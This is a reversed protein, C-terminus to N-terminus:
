KKVRWWLSDIEDREGLPEPEKRCILRDKALLPKPWFGGIKVDRCGSDIFVM